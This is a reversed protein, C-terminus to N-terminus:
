GGLEDPTVRALQGLAALVDALPAPVLGQASRWVATRRGQRVALEYSVTDRGDDAPPAAPGAALLAGVTGVLAEMQAASLTREVAVAGEVRSPSRRYTLRGSAYVLLESRRFVLGGASRLRLWGGPPFRAVLGASEVEDGIVGLVRPKEAM